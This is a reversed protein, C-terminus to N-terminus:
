LSRRMKKAWKFGEALPIHAPCAYSCAGCERCDVLNLGLAAQIDEHAIFKFMTTPSLGVPCVDLCRGCSICPTTPKVPQPAMAVIGDMGKTIPTDEDIEFGMMPGGAILKGPLSTYGGCHAVLDRVKTGIPVLLNAPHAMCEGTVTVVREIFPKRLVCGQQIAYATSINTVIAGADIPLKGQPVERGLVANILMKEDGEPYKTKLPAIIINLGSAAVKERLLSIADLKNTEIGIYVEPPSLIHMLIAIGEILEDAHELMVRHDATVYPECESGNIVLADLKRGSPVALKVHTPFAAGGAGVIGMEQILAVLEAPSLTRWDPHSIDTFDPQVPDPEIVVAESDAGTVLHVRRIDTVKGSAPSHVNASVNGTAQALKQGREVTDGKKVLCVAPVGIHAALPITLESPMPMPSIAQGSSFSKSDVPHVGGRRFTLSRIM